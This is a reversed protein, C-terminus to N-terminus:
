AAKKSPAKAAVSAAVSAPDPAEGEGFALWGPSATTFTCVKAINDDRLRKISRRLLQNIHSKSLGAKLGFATPSLNSWAVLARLRGEFTSLDPTDTPNTEM